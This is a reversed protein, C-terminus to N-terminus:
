GQAAAAPGGDEHVQVVVVRGERSRALNDALLSCASAKVARLGHGCRGGYDAPVRMM